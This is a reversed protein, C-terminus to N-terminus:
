VHGLFMYFFFEVLLWHFLKLNYEVLVHDLYFMTVKVSSLGDFYQSFISRTFDLSSMTIRMFRLLNVTMM